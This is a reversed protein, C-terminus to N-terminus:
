CQPYWQCWTEEVCLWAGEVLIILRFYNSLDKVNCSKNVAINLRIWFLIHSSLAFEGPMIKTVCLMFPYIFLNQKYKYIYIYIFGFANTFASLPFIVCYESAIIYIVYIFPVVSFFIQFGLFQLTIACYSSFDSYFIIEAEFDTRSKALIPWGARIRPFRIDIHTQQLTCSLFLLYM